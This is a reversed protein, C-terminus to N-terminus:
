PTIIVPNVIVPEIIQPNVVTPAPIQVVVPDVTIPAPIQVPAPQTVVTVQGAPIQVPAPQMVVEPRLSGVSNALGIAAQGGVHLGVVAGTASILTTAVGAWENPRSQQITAAQSPANVEISKLGTIQQGEMAEIKLLPKAEAAHQRNAETQAQLYAFYDKDAACGALALAALAAIIIKM